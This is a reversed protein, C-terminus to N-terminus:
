EILSIGVGIWRGDLGYLQGFPFPGDHAELALLLRGRRSWPSALTLGVRLEIEPDWGTESWASADLAGFLRAGTGGRAPAEFEAGLQAMNQGIRIARGITRSGGGHFRWNGLRWTALLEIAEFSLERRPGVTIVQPRVLFEDGLHSSRHYLRARLGVAGWRVSLPVGVLYDTNWLDRSDAELDFVSSIGAALDVQWTATRGSWRLVGFSGGFSAIGLVRDVAGLDAAVIRAEFRPEREGAAPGSVLATAPFWRPGGPGPEADMAAAGPAAAAAAAIGLALCAGPTIGRRRCSPPSDPVPSM